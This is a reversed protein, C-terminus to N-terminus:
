FRLSKVYDLRCSRHPPRSRALLRRAREARALQEYLRDQEAPDLDDFGPSNVLAVIKDLFRTLHNMSMKRALPGNQEMKRLPSIVKRGVQQARRTRERLLEM